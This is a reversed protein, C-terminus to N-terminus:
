GHTPRALWPASTKRAPTVRVYETGIHFPGVPVLHLQERDRGSRRERTSVVCGAALRM